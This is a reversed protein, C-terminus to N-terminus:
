NDNNYSWQRPPTYSGGITYGATVASASKSNGSNNQKINSEFLVKWSEIENSDQITKLVMKAAQSINRKESDDVLQSVINNTNAPDIIRSSAFNDRFAELVKIFGKELDGKNQYGSLTQVVFLELIFTKIKINNRHAWLKILRIISVCGSDVIHDIHIKLNTQMREKDGQAVHLFVDKTDTIFRGPVVDIHFDGPADAGKLDLIREASAKHTLLYKKSLRTAVDERIEKLSREDSSPFYCVIDLDYRDCIMTGKERSGAYKIVPDDGFEERLFATVENKHSQLAEEQKESLDQSALLNELYKSPTM